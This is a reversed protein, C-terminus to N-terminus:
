KTVHLALVISTIIIKMNVRYSAQPKQKLNLRKGKHSRLTGWHGPMPESHSGERSKLKKPFSDLEDAGFIGRCAPTFPHLIHLCGLSERGFGVLEGSSWKLWCARVSCAKRHGGCHDRENCLVRCIFLIFCFIRYSEMM